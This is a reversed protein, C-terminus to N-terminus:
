HHTSEQVWQVFGALDRPECFYFGQMTDCGIGALSTVQDEDEVGEAVLGINLDRALDVMGKILNKDKESLNVDRVISKDLKLYDLPITRLYNISTSGIGYNDLAIKVGLDHLSAMIKNAEFCDRMDSSDRLELCLLHPPLGVEDLISKIREVVRYSKFHEACMNVAVPIPIGKDCWVRAQVCASHLVYFDLQTILSYEEAHAVFEQPMLVGKEPHRWRVLAEAGVLQYMGKEVKVNPQYYVLLENNSMAKPLEKIIWDTHSENEEIDDHYIVFSNKGKDKAAYMAVDANHVLESLTRGHKPYVSAGVSVSVTLERGMLELDNNLEKLIGKAITEVDIMSNLGEVVAVFEDGGYRYVRDEGRLNNQLRAAIQKLLQDGFDHGFSDNVVKFDDLDMMFVAFYHGKRDAAAAARIIEDELLSRNPLGTLTDHLARYKLDESLRKLDDSRQRVRKELHMERTRVKSLFENLGLSLKRINANTDEEIFCAFNGTQGAVTLAKDIRKLPAAVWRHILLGACAVVAFIAVVVVIFTNWLASQVAELGRSDFVTILKNGADMAVGEDLMVIPSSVIQPSFSYNRDAIIAEFAKMSMPAAQMLEPMNAQALVKSQRNVIVAAVVNNHTAARNLWSHLEAGGALRQSLSQTIASLSREVQQQHQQKVADVSRLTIVLAVACVVAALLLLILTIKASASLGQKQM